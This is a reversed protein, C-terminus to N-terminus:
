DDHIDRKHTAPRFEMVTKDGVGLIRKVKIEHSGNISFTYDRDLNPNDSPPVSAGLKTLRGVLYGEGFYAKYHVVVYDEASKFEGFCAEFISKFIEQTESM